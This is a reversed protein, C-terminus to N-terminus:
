KYTGQLTFTTPKIPNSAAKILSYPSRYARRNSDVMSKISAHVKATNIHYINLCIYRYRSSWFYDRYNTPLSKRFNSRRRLKHLNADGECVTLNRKSFLSRYTSMFSSLRDRTLHNAIFVYSRTM